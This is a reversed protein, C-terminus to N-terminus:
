QIEATIANWKFPGWKGNINCAPWFSPESDLFKPADLLLPVM